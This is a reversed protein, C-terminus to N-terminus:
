GITKKLFFSPGIWAEKKKIITTEICNVTLINLIFKSGRVEPTPLSREVLQAVALAITSDITLALLNVFSYTSSWKHIISTVM